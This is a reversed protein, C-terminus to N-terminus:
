QRKTRSLRRHHLPYRGAPRGGRWRTVHLLGLLIHRNTRHRVCRAPNFRRSWLGGTVSHDAASSCVFMFGYMSLSFSLSHVHIDNVRVDFSAVNCLYGGAAATMM